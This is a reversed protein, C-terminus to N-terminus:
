LQYEQLFQIVDDLKVFTELRTKGHCETEINFVTYIENQDSKRRLALPLAAFRERIREVAALQEAVHKEIDALQAMFALAEASPEFEVANVDADGMRSVGAKFERKVGVPLVLRSM